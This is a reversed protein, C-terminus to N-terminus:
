KKRSMGPFDEADMHARWAFEDKANKECTKFDPRDKRTPEIELAMGVNECGFTWHNMMITPGLNEIHHWWGAPLYLMDGASLEILIHNLKDIVKQHDEPMPKANPYPVSAWCLSQNDGECRVPRLTRWDTPPALFWKKVGVVMMVFNDCCDHHFKTDSTSTGFWASAPQFRQKQVFPPRSVGMAALNKSSMHLNRPFNRVGHSIKELKVDNSIAYVAPGLDLSTKTLSYKNYTKPSTDTSPDYPYKARMEEVTSEQTLFGMARAHEFPIILPTSTKRFFEHFEQRTITQALRPVYRKHMHSKFYTEHMNLLKWMGPFPREFDPDEPMNVVEAREYKEADSFLFNGLGPIRKPVVVVEKAKGKHEKMEGAQKREMKDQEIEEVSEEVGGQGLAETGNVDVLLELPYAEQGQKEAVQMMEKLSNLPKVDEQVAPSSTMGFMLDYPRTTASVRVFVLGVM